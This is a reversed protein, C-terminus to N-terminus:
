GADKAKAKAAEKAAKLRGRLREAYGEKNEQKARGIALAGDPV